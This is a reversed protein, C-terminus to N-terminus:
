ELRTNTDTGAPQVQPISGLIKPLLKGEETELESVEIRVAIGTEVPWVGADKLASVLVSITTEKGLLELVAYRKGSDEIIGEVTGSCVQRKNFM